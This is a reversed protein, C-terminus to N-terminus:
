PTILSEIEKWAKDKIYTLAQPSWRLIIKLNIVVVETDPANRKILDVYLPVIDNRKLKSWDGSNLIAEKEIPVAVTTM